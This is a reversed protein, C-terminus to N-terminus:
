SWSFDINIHTWLWYIIDWLKWLALPLLVLISFGIMFMMAEIMKGIGDFM